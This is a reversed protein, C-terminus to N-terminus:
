DASGRITEAFHVYIQEGRIGPGPLAKKFRDDSRKFIYIRVSKIENKRPRRNKRRPLPTRSILRKTLIIMRASAPSQYVLFNRGPARGQLSLAMVPFLDITKIPIVQTKARPMEGAM